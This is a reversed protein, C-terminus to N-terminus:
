YSRIIADWGEMNHIRSTTMRPASIHVPRAHSLSIAVKLKFCCIGRFSWTSTQLDLGVFKVWFRSSCKFDLFKFQVKWTFSGQRVSDVKQAQCNPIDSACNCAFSQPSYQSPCSATGAGPGPRPVLRCFRWTRSRTYDITSPYLSLKFWPWSGGAGCAGPGWQPAGHCSHRTNNVHIELVWIVTTSTDYCKEPVSIIPM